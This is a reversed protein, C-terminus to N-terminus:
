NVSAPPLMGTSGSDTLTGLSSFIKRITWKNVCGLIFLSKHTRIHTRM